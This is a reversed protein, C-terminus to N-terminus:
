KENALGLRERLQQKTEELQKQYAQEKTQLVLMLRLETETQSFEEGKEPLRRLVTMKDTWYPILVDVTNTLRKDFALDIWRVTSELVVPDICNSDVVPKFWLFLDQASIREVPAREIYADIKRAYEHWDEQQRLASIRLKEVYLEPSDFAIEEMQQQLKLLVNEDINSGPNVDSLLKNSYRFYINKLARDVEAQGFKQMYSTKNEVLYEVAPLFPDDVESLFLSFVEPSEYESEPLLSLYQLAVEKSRSDATQILYDLFAKAAKSNTKDNEYNKELEKNFNGGNLAEKAEAMLKEATRFGVVRHVLRDKADIWLLSPYAGVHYQKALDIGEGKECDIKIAIFNDNFFDAVDQQTFIESSLRKCPGCWVTYCDIFILKKEKKAKAKADALTGHIFAIGDNSQAFSCLQSAVLIVIILLKKM